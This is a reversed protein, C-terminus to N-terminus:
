KNKEAVKAKIEDLCEHMASVAKPDYIIGSNSDIYDVANELQWAEKYSRKTTLADITDAVAAIRAYENINEGAIGNYGRGDWREHHEAAIEAACRMFGGDFVSLLQRGYETHKKIIERENESLLATKNTIEPPIATKGIDHLMAAASVTNVTQEPYGMKEMIVRTYYAVCELHDSNNGSAAETDGALSTFVSIETEAANEYPSLRALAVATCSYVTAMISTFFASLGYKLNEFHFIVCIEGKETFAFDFYAASFNCFKGSEACRREIAAYDIEGSLDSYIQRYSGNEKVSVSFSVSDEGGEDFIGRYLEAVGDAATKCAAAKDSRSLIKEMLEATKKVCKDYLATKLEVADSNAGSFAKATLVFGIFCLYILEGIIRCHTFNSRYRLTLQMVGCLANLGSLFTLMIFFGGSYQIRRSLLGACRYACVATGVSLLVTASLIGIRTIFVNPIFFTAAAAATGLVSFLIIKKDRIELVSAAVVTFIIIPIIEAAASINYFQPFNIFYTAGTLAQLLAAVGYILTLGALGFGIARKRKFLPLFAAAFLAAIGLALMIFAFVLGGNVTFGPNEAGGTIETTIEASFPLCVSIEIETESDAAPLVVANYRNGVYESEGYHNNYVAEGNIAIQMPAYDANIILRREAAAGGISGRMHLFKGTKEKSMPTFSNATSWEASNDTPPQKGNTYIYEWSPVSRDSIISNGVYNFVYNVAVTIILIVAALEALLWFNAEGVVTKKIKQLIDTIKRM